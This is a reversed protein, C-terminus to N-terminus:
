PCDDQHNESELMSLPCYLSTETNFPIRAVFRFFSDKTACRMTCLASVDAPTLSTIFNWMECSSSADQLYRLYQCFLKQFNCNIENVM